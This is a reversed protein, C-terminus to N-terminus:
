SKVGPNNFFKILDAKEAATCERGVVEKCNRRFWKEVKSSDTFREPDAKPSLPAIRKGTIVHKGDQTLDSGHCTQCSPMRRSVGWKHAFFSKGREASPAFGPTTRVAQNAYGDMLAVPSEAWVTGAIAMLLLAICIKGSNM